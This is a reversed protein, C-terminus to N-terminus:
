ANEDILGRMKNQLNESIELSSNWQDDFVVSGNKIGVLRPKLLALEYLHHTSIFVLKGKQRLTEILELIIEINKLDSATTPEDLLVLDPDHILTRALKVRHQQGASLEKPYRKMLGEVGVAEAAKYAFKKQPTLGHFSAVLSLNQEVTLTNQLEAFANHAGVKIPTEILSNYGKKGLKVEMKKPTLIGSLTRYFTTKGCGNSGIFAVIEKKQFELNKMQLTFDSNPYQYSLDKIQFM